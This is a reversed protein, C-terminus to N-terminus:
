AVTKIMASDVAQPHSEYVTGQEIMEAIMEADTAPWTDTTGVDMAVTYAEGAAFTHTEALVILDEDIDVTVVGDHVERYIVRITTGVQIVHHLGTVALRYFRNVASNRQLYNLTLQALQNCVEVSDFTMDDTSRVDKFAVIREIQGYATEATANRIYNNATSMVYGAPMTLTANVLSVRAKGNGAGFPYIRTILDNTDRTEELAVIQCAVLNSEQRISGTHMVARVGSATYGAGTRLWHLTRGAGLRFNEGAREAIKTLANLVLEGAFAAYTGATTRDFITLGDAGAAWSAWTAPAFAMVAGIDDARNSRVGIVFEVVSVTNLGATPDVRVWYASVGNVTEAVWNANRQFLVHNRRDPDTEPNVLVLDHAWPVGGVIQTDDVIDFEPWNGAGDSYGYNLDAAVTNWLTGPAGADQYTYLVNFPASYGVFLYSNTPDGLTFSVRNAAGFTKNGDYAAVLDTWTSSSYSFVKTPVHTTETVVSLDHVSRYRLEALLDSGTVELLLGGDWRIADIIGAGIEAIAGSVLAYCRVVRKSQLLAARPDAAAVVLAFTGAKSLEATSGWSVVHVLPGDGLRAGASDEVNVWCTVPNTM